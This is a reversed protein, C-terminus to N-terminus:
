SMKITWRFFCDPIHDFIEPTWEANNKIAFSNPSDIM